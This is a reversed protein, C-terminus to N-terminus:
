NLPFDKEKCINTLYEYFERDVKYHKGGIKVYYEDSTERFYNVEIVKLETGDKGIFKLEDLYAQKIPLKYTTKRKLLELLKISDEESISMTVKRMRNHIVASDVEQQLPLKPSTLIVFSLVAIVVIFIISVVTVKKM